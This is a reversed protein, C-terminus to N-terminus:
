CINCTRCANFVEIQSAAPKHNVDAATLGEYVWCAALGDKCSVTGDASPLSVDVGGISALAGDTDMGEIPIRWM